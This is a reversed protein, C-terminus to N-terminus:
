IWTVKNETHNRIREINTRHRYIILMALLINMFSSAPPYHFAIAVFVYAIASVMSALSVYKTIKLVLLFLLGVIIFAYISLSFIYGFLVSVAKGGKFNLFIPFCHGLACIFANYYVLDPNLHYHMICFGTLHVVVFCKSADLLFSFFGAKAGLIRGANSAGVNGSGEKRIDKHYCLLGLLLAFPISGYLYAFIFLLISM